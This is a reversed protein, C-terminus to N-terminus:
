NTKKTKKKFDTKPKQKNNEVEKYKGDKDGTKIPKTKSQKVTFITYNAWVVVASKYWHVTHELM